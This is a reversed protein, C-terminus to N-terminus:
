PASKSSGIRAADFLRKKANPNMGDVIKKLKRIGTENLGNARGGIADLSLLTALSKRRSKIKPNPFHYQMGEKFNEYAILDAPQLM